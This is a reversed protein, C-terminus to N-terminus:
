KPTARSPRWRPSLGTKGRVLRVSYEYKGPHYLSEQFYVPRGSKDFATGRMRLVPSGVPLALSTAVDGDVVTATLTHETVEPRHPTDELMELILRDGAKRRDIRSGISEPVYISSYSVPADDFHRVRRILLCRETPRLNLTQRVLPPPAVLAWQLETSTLRIGRAVLDDVPGRLREPERGGSPSTAVITGQGKHKRVLGEDALQQLARRVTVRSYGYSEALDNESPLLDGTSYVNDRIHESLVVYLRHYAPMPLKATSRSRDKRPM